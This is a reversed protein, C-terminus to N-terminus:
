SLLNMRSNRYGGGGGRISNNCRNRSSSNSTRLSLALAKTLSGIKCAPCVKDLRRPAGWHMWICGLWNLPIYLFLAVQMSSPLARFIFKIQDLFGFKANGNEDDGYKETDKIRKKKFTYQEQMLNFMKAMIDAQSEKKKIDKQKNSPGIKTFSSDAQLKGTSTPTQDDNSVINKVLKSMLPMTMFDQYGPQSAVKNAMEQLKNDM